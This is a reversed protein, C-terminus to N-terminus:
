NKRCNASVIETEIIMEAILAMFEYDLQAALVLRLTDPPMTMLGAAFSQEYKDKWGERVGIPSAFLRQADVLVVANAASPIKALLEEFQGQAPLPIFGTALSVLALLTM